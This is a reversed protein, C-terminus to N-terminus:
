AAHVGYFQTLILRSLAVSHAGATRGTFVEFFLSTGSMSNKVTLFLFGAGSFTQFDITAISRKTELRNEQDVGRRGEEAGRPAASCVQRFILLLDLVTQSYSSSEV